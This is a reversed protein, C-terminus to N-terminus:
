RTTPIDIKLEQNYWLRLTSDEVVVKFSYAQGVTWEKSLWYTTHGSMDEDFVYAKMGHGQQAIVEVYPGVDSDFVQLCTTEQTVSPLVTM